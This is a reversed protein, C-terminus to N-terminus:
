VVSRASNWAFAGCPVRDYWAGYDTSYNRNKGSM